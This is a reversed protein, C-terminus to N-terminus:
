RTAQNTTGWVLVTCGGTRHHLPPTYSLSRGQVDNHGTM